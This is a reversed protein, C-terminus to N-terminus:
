FQYGITMRFNRRPEVIYSYIGNSFSAATLLARSELIPLINAPIYLIYALILLAWTRSMSDPKRAHLRAQCRPCHAREHGALRSLMGCAHCSVLGHAMASPMVPEPPPQYTAVTKM